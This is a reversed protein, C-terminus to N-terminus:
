VAPFVHHTDNKTTTPIHPHQPVSLVNYSFRRCFTEIAPSNHHSRSIQTCVRRRVRASRPAISTFSLLRQM